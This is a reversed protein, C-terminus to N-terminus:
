KHDRIVVYFNQVSKMVAGGNQVANKSKDLTKQSNKVTSTTWFYTNWHLQSNIEPTSKIGM